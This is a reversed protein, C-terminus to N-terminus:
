ALLNLTGFLNEWMIGLLKDLFDSMPGAIAMILFLGLLVKLQINIVFIQITPVAKMMVGVCLETILEAAVIPMAMKIALTMVTGLFMAIRYSADVFSLTIEFGVPLMEYSQAFLRIYSLHGGTLFFYMIFMYYYLNAFMPMNINTIPDMVKAMGLGIQNDILEGAYIMVTLTLNVIFGFILGLAAEKLIVAVLGPVGDPIYGIVGGMSMLTVVTLVLSMAARVRVPVNARGLIPNFTFIGTVRALVILCGVFNYVILDWIERM